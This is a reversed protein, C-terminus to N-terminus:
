GWLRLENCDWNPINTQQFGRLTCIVKKEIFGTTPLIASCSTLWFIWLCCWFRFRDDQLDWPSSCLSVTKRMHSWHHVSLHLQCFINMKAMRNKNLHANTDICKKFLETGPKPIQNSLKSIGLHYHCLALFALCHSSLSSSECQCLRRCHGNLTLPCIIDM